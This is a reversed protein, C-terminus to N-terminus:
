RNRGGRRRPFPRNDEVGQHDSRYLKAVQFTCIVPKEEEKSRQDPAILMQEVVYFGDPSQIEALWEVMDQMPATLKLRVAIKRFPPQQSPELITQELITIGRERAFKQLHAILEGQAEGPESLQPQHIEMWQQREEWYERDSLLAQIEERKTTFTKIQLQSRKVSTLMQKLLIVNLALFIAGCFLVLLRLEKSSLKAM